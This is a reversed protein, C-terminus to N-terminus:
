LMGSGRILGTVGGEGILDIVEGGGSNGETVNELCGWEDGLLDILGEM